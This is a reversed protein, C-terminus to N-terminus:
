EEPSDLLRDLSKDWEDFFGEPWEDLRGNRDITPTILRSAGDEGRDLFYLAVNEAAIAGDHVSLRVGNLIHDSHTELVVQVGAQAARAILEGMRVQGHPHLHAEPNEILLLYGPEASLLAVVIHLAYSIGFGVNTSRYSNSIDKGQVFAFRLDVLDLNPIIEPLVKVGPSIEGMWADVQNQLSFSVAQPHALAPVPIPESGYQALFHPTFEGHAGLQRHQNVQYKSMGFSKRPGSREAQLYHFHDTFLSSQYAEDVSISTTLRPADDGRDYHFSWAAQPADDLGLAFGFIDTSAGEFFIDKATGMEVLDGNLSLGHRELFGEGKSQRLLLLGQLVSSKGAGNMGALLTLNRFSFSAKRFCKFNSIEFSRIM